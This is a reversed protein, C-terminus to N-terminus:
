LSPWIMTWLSQWVLQQHLWGNQIHSAVENAKGKMSAVQALMNGDLSQEVGIVIIADTPSKWEIIHLQGDDDPIQLDFATTIDYQWEGRDNWEFAMPMWSCKKIKQGGGTVWTGGSWCLVKEQMQLGVDLITDSDEEAADLLDTDDVYVLGVISFDDGSIASHLHAV